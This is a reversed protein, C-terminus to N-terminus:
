VRGAEEVRSPVKERARRDRGGLGREPRCRRQGGTGGGEVEWRRRAGRVPAGEM